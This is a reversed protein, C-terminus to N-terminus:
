FGRMANKYFTFGLVPTIFRYTNIKTVITREKKISWYFPFLHFTILNNKIKLTKNM